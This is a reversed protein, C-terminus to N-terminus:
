YEIILSEEIGLRFGIRRAELQGKWFKNIINNFILIERIGNKAIELLGSVKLMFWTLFKIIYAKIKVLGKFSTTERKQWISRTILRMVILKNITGM